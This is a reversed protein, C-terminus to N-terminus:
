MQDHCYGEFKLLAERCGNELASLLFDPKVRVLNVLDGKSVRTTVDSTKLTVSQDELLGSNHVGTSPYSKSVLRLPLSSVGTLQYKVHAHQVFQLPSEPLYKLFPFTFVFSGFSHLIIYAERPFISFHGPEHRKLQYSNRMEKLWVLNPHPLM